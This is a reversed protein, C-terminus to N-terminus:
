AITAQGRPSPGVGRLDPDPNSDPVGGDTWTEWVEVEYMDGTTLDEQTFVYPGAAQVLTLLYFEPFTADRLVPATNLIICQAGHRVWGPPSPLASPTATVTLQEATTIDLTLTPQPFAPNGTEWAPVPLPTTVSRIGSNAGIFFNRPIGPVGRARKIWGWPRIPAGNLIQWVRNLNRFLNRQQVQATSRPQSPPIFRRALEVGQWHSFVIGGFRGSAREVIPAYTLKM